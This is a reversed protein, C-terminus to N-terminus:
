RLVCQAKYYLGVQSNYETFSVSLDYPKYDRKQASAGDLKNLDNADMNCLVLITDMSNDDPKTMFEAQTTTPAQELYLTMGYTKGIVSNPSDKAIKLLESHNLSLVQRTSETVPSPAETQQEQSNLEQNSPTLAKGITGLVILVIFGILGWKLIKKM